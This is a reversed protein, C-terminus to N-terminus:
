ENLPCQIVTQLLVQFAARFIAAKTQLERGAQPFVSENFVSSPMVSLSRKGDARIKPVAEAKRLVTEEASNCAGTSAVSGVGPVRTGGQLFSGGLGGGVGM